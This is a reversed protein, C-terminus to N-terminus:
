ISSLPIKTFCEVSSDPCANLVEIGAAKLHLALTKFYPVMKEFQTEKNKIPHGDHWHSNGDEFRMDFGLLVITSPRLHYALNIAAYGSNNGNKIYGPRRDLGGRGSFRIEEIDPHNLVAGTIKRAKHKLLKEKHWYFFRKDSFYIIEANPLVEYSRNVAIVRKSNLRGWDFGKLSPGGAVIYITDDM